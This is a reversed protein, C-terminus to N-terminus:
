AGQETAANGKRVEGLSAPDLADAHRIPINIGNPQRLPEPVLVVIVMLFRPQIDGVNGVLIDCTDIEDDRGIHELVDARGNRHCEFIGQPHQFGVAREDEAHRVYHGAVGGLMEGVQMIEPDLVPLTPPYQHVRRHIAGLLNEGVKHKM